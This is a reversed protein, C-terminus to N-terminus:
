LDQEDNVIMNAPQFDGYISKYPDKKKQADGADNVPNPQIDLHQLDRDVIHHSYETTSSYIKDRPGALVANHYISSDSNRPSPCLGLIDLGGSELFDHAKKTLSRSNITAAFGPESTTPTSTMSGIRPFNLDRLQVQFSITQRFITEVVDESVDEKM